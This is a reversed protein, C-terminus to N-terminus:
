AAFGSALNTIKLGEVWWSLMDTEPNGGGAGYKRVMAAIRKWEDKTLCPRQPCVQSAKRGRIYAYAIMTLKVETRVPGVRHATLENIESLTYASNGAMRVLDYRRKRAAPVNENNRVRIYQEPPFAKRKNEEHRIIQAEAMLSKLKIKLFLRKDM